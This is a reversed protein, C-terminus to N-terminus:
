FPPSEWEELPAVPQVDFHGYVLVTPADGQNSAAIEGVALPFTATEVLEADGGARGIFDRVWEAARRVDDAHEPDASISEIRLFESLEELWGPELDAM